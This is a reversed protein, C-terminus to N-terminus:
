SITVKPPIDFCYLLEYAGIRLLARDVAAMRGVDWNDAAEHIINDLDDKNESVGEFLTRGFEKSDAPDNEREIIEKADEYARDKGRADLVYVLKMALERGVSRKRANPDVQKTDFEQPDTM